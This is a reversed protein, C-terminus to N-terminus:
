VIYPIIRHMLLSALISPDINYIIPGSGSGLVLVVMWWRFCHATSKNITLSMALVLTHVFTIDPLLSAVPLSYFIFLTKLYIQVLLLTKIKIFM